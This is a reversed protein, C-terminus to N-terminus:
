GLCNCQTLFLSCTWGPAFRTESTHASAEPRQPQEPHFCGTWRKALLGPVIRAIFEPARAWRAPLPRMRASPLAGQQQVGRCLLCRLCTIQGTAVPARPRRSAPPPPPHTLSSRKMKTTTSTAPLSYALPTTPPAGPRPPSRRKGAPAARPPCARGQVPRPRAAM